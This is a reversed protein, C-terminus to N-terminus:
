LLACQIPCVGEKGAQGIHCEIGISKTFCDTSLLAEFAITSLARDQDVNM